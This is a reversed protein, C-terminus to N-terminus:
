LRGGRASEEPPQPPGKHGCATGALVAVTLVVAVIVWKTKM